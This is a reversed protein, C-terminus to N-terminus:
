QGKVVTSTIASQLQSTEILIADSGKLEKTLPALPKWTGFGGTEFAEGIVDEAAVGILKFIETLDGSVVYQEIDKISKVLEKSKLKLPDAIFSRRPINESFSGFEHKVGVEANTKGDDRSNKNKLVGVKVGIKNAGALARVVKNLSSINLKVRGSKSDAM